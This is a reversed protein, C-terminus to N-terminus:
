AIQFVIKAHGNEDDQLIDYVRINRANEIERKVKAAIQKATKLTSSGCYNHENSGCVTKDDEYRIYYRKTM